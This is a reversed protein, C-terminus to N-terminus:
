EIKDLGTEHIVDITADDDGAAAVTRGAIKHTSATETVVEGSADWYVRKGAAIASSTATSKAFTYVGGQAAVAGKENAAIDVHAIRIDDGIVIVDGASVASSPTYDVMLPNGHRYTAQAM